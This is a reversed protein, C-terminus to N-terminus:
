DRRLWSITTRSTPNVETIYWNTNNALKTSDLSRTPFIFNILTLAMSLKYPTIMTVAICIMIDNHEHKLPLILSHFGFVTKIINNTSKINFM